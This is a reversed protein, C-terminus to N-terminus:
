GPMTPLQGGVVLWVYQSRDGVAVMLIGFADLEVEVLGEAAKSGEWGLTRFLFWTEKLVSRPISLDSKM